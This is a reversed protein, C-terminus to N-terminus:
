FSFRAQLGFINVNSKYDGVLRGSSPDPTQGAGHVVDNISTNRVFVYAYGVDIALSNVPAYQGGIALWYRDSDPIRPSRYENKVPSQDYAAGFRLKWQAHPKYNGGVAFRWTDKWREPVNSLEMGNDNVVRLESFVGWHTWSIDGLLEWEPTLQQVLSLTASDPLRMDAKANGNAALVRAQTAAPLSSLPVPTSLSSTGTLTYKISSRYNVGLRTSPLAQWLVGANFGWAWDDGKLQALGDGAAGFNKANTLDAQAWQYVPGAGISVGDYIKCAVVPNFAFTKLESKIAIYRGAWSPDYETKLGFPENFGAGLSWIKSVSYSFYGNPVLAWGGADGDNGGVPKTGPLPANSAGVSGKNSFKASPKIADAGVVVQGGGLRTLGAPNFFVTSADEAVAASGAYANGLGSANQELVQFGSALAQTELGAFALGVVVALLTPRAGFQKM